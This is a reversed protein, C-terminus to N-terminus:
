DSFVKHEAFRRMLEEVTMPTGFFHGQFLDAGSSTLKEFQAQTEIGELLVIINRVKCLAVIHHLFDLELASEVIDTLFSKDIKAYRASLDKLYSLSSNGVGFDDILVDFGHQRFSEIATQARDYNEMFESETIEIKIKSPDMKGKIATQISIPLYLDELDVASINFTCFIDLKSFHKQYDEILRYLVWRTLAGIIHSHIAIPLFQDPGLLGREPHMWRVLAEVGCIQGEANVLAMYRLQLENERVAKTLGSRLFLRDLAQQHVDDNFILWPKGIEIAQALAATSNSILQDKESGDEPFITIGICARLHIDTEQHHFPVAIQDEVREAVILLDSKWEFQTVIALIRNDDYHFIMDSLRLAERINNGVQEFIINSIKPGFALKLGELNTIQIMMLALKARSSSRSAKELETELVIDLSRRNLLGSSRDFFEDQTMRKQLRQYATSDKFVLVVWPRHQESSTTKPGPEVTLGGTYERENIFMVVNKKVRKGELGLAVMNLVVQRNSIHEAVDSFQSHQRMDCRPFFKLAAQNHIVVRMQDDIVLVPDTILNFLIYKLRGPESKEHHSM